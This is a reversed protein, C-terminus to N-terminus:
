GTGDAGPPSDTAPSDIRYASTSTTWIQAASRPECLWDAVAHTIPHGAGQEVFLFEGAPNIELFVLEGSSTLRFDAGGYVIGFHSMLRHLAAEVDRPIAFPKTTAGPLGLRFDVTDGDVPRDGGIAMAFMQDAVITVRIDAVAPVKQQFIVPALHLRDLKALDHDRVVRTERWVQETAAFIKYVTQGPGHREVFARAVDADSTMVTEPVRLGLHPAVTLQLAKHSAVQDALVPNMWPCDLLWHMGHLAEQWEGYCFGRAAPDAVADLNVLQPRRWWVATADTLEVTGMDVHALRASPGGEATPDITLRARNPLDSVDFLIAPRGRARLVELVRQAHLDRPHSIVVIM